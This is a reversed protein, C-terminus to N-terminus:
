REYVAFKFLPQGEITKVYHFPQWATAFTKNLKFFRVYDIQQSGYYRKSKNDDTNRIDVFVVDPHRDRLDEALANMFFDMNQAQKAYEQQYRQQMDHYKLAPVWIMVGFRTALNQQSYQIQPFIAEDMNSFYVVSKNQYPQMASVLTRYNEKFSYAYHYIYGSQFVPYAFVVLGAVMLVAFPAKTRASRQPLALLFLLLMLSATLLLIHVQLPSHLLYAYFSLAALLIATLALLIRSPSSVLALIIAFLSIFFGFFVAPTYRLTVMVNQLHILFYIGLVLTFGVVSIYEKRSINKQNVLLSYLLGFLITSAAVM